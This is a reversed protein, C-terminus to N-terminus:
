KKNRKIYSIGQDLYGETFACERCMDATALGNITQGRYEACAKEHCMDCDPLATVIVDTQVEKM